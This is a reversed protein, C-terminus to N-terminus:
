SDKSERYIYFYLAQKKESATGDPNDSTNGVFMMDAYGVAEMRPLPIHCTQNLFRMISSARKSAIETDIQPSGSEGSYSRISIQYDFLAFGTGTVELYDAMEKPIMTSQYDFVHPISVRIYRGLQADDVDEDTNGGGGKGKTSDEHLGVEGDEDVHEDHIMQNTGKSNFYTFRFMGFGGKLGFANKVDGIGAKFGAEQKNAMTNLLIFFALMVIMLSTYLAMYAPAGGEDKKKAM